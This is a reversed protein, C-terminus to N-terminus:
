KRYENKIENFYKQLSITRDDKEKSEGMIANSEADDSVAGYRNKIMSIFKSLPLAPSVGESVSLGRRSLSEYKFSHQPHTAEIIKPIIIDTLPIANMADEPTVVYSRYKAALDYRPTTLSIDCIELVAITCLTALREVLDDRIIGLKPAAAKSYEYIAMAIFEDDPLNKFPTIDIRVGLRSSRTCLAEVAKRRRSLVRLESETREKTEQSNLADMENAFDPNVSKEYEVARDNMGQGSVNCYLGIENSWEDLAPDKPPITQSVDYMRVKQFMVNSDKGSLRTAEIRVKNLVQTSGMAKVEKFGGKYGCAKAGADLDAYTLTAKNMPKLVVIPQAGPAVTRNFQEMWTHAECVFSAEPFQDLVEKINNPSLIHGYKRECEPTMQYRLLRQRVKPDNLKTLMEQWNSIRAVKANEIDEATATSNVAKPIIDCVNEISKPTYEDLQKIAEGIKAMYNPLESTTDMNVLLEVGGHEGKKAFMFQKPIASNIAQALKDESGGWVHTLYVKIFEKKTGDKSNGTMSVSGAVTLNGRKKAAGTEGDGESKKPWRKKIAELVATRIISNLRSETLRITRKM